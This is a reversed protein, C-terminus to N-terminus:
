IYKDYKRKLYLEPNESYLFEFIKKANTGYGYLRYLPIKHKHGEAGSGAERIAIYLSINLKNELYKQMELLNSHNTSDIQFTLTKSYKVSGDGDFYGRIYDKWFKEPLIDFPM